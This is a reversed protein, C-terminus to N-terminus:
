EAPQVKSGGEVAERVVDAEAQMAEEAWIDHHERAWNVDVRGTTMAHGISVFFLTGGVNTLESSM